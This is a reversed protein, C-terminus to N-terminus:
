QLTVLWDVLEKRTQDPLNLNPMATGPKVAPPNALWVDLEEETYRSAVGDLSPGVAGGKGGVAHCAVCITNFYDPPPVSPEVAAVIIPATGALELDPEAPFGNTDIEGVWKMFAILDAIQEDDFNYQVMKREGPFMAQPDKM